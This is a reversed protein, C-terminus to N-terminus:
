DWYYYVHTHTSGDPLVVTVTVRHKADNFNTGPSVVEGVVVVNENVTNSVTESANVNAFYAM